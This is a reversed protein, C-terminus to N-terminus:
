TYPRLQSSQTCFYSPHIGLTDKPHPWPLPLEHQPEISLGGCGADKERSCFPSATARGVTCTLFSLGPQVWSAFCPYLQIETLAAGLSTGVVQRRGGGNLDGQCILALMKHGYVKEGEQGEMLMDSQSAKLCAPWLCEMGM